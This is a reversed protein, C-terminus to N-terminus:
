LSMVLPSLRSPMKLQFPMSETKQMPYSTGDLAAGVGLGDGLGLAAGVGLGDGLGLAAGVGLGDGLGLAAGV